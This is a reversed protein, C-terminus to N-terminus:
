FPLKIGGPQIQMWDMEAVVGLELQPDRLDPVINYAKKLDNVKISVTTKHDSNFVSVINEGGEPQTSGNGPSYPKLEGALYFKADLPVTGQQCQFSSSTKNQFELAFHVTQNATTPLVLVQVYQSTVGLTIGSITNDYVFFSESSKPAFSYDVDKQDGIIIGTLPCGEASM